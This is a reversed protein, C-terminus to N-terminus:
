KSYYYRWPLLADAGAYEVGIRPSTQISDKSIRTGDDAIYLRDSTTLDEANQVRTIHLARTVKGPGDTKTTINHVPTIGRILVAAPVDKHETVINLCHYMGYILYVYAHGADGFMVETRKTKGKSAHCATDNEGVYSEVEVIRGISKKNRWTRVLLKGLLDKAVAHTNRAYFSRPLPKFNTSMM